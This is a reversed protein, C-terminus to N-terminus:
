TSTGDSQKTLVEKSSQGMVRALCVAGVAETSAELHASADKAETNEM